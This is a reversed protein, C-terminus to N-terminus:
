LFNRSIGSIGLIGSIGKKGEFNRFFEPFINAGPLNTVIEVLSSKALHQSYSYVILMKAVEKDISKDINSL